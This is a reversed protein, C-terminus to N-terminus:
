AEGGTRRKPTRTGLGDGGQAPIRGWQKLEYILEPLDITDRQDLMVLIDVMGLLYPNDSESYPGQVAYSREFVENAWQEFKVCDREFDTMKNRSPRPTPMWSPHDFDGWPHKPTNFYEEADSTRFDNSKQGKDLM